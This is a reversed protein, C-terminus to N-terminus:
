GRLALAEAAQISRNAYWPDFNAFRDALHVRNPLGTLSDHLSEHVAHAAALDIQRRFRACCPPLGLMLVVGVLLVV